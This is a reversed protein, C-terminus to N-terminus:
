GSFAHKECGDLGSDDEKESGKEAAEWGYCANRGPKCFHTLFRFFFGRSGKPENLFGKPENSKGRKQIVCASDNLFTFFPPTDEGGRKFGYDM